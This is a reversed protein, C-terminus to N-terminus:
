RKLFMRVRLLATSKKINTCPDDSFRIKLLPDSFEGSEFFNNLSESLYNLLFDSSSTKLGHALDFGNGIIILRNM